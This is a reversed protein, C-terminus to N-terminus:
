GAKNPNPSNRWLQVILTGVGVLVIGFIQRINLPEDLFLWALIAIQPLMTNNIISSEVATLTKLTNNW